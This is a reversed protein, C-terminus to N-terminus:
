RFATATQASLDAFDVVEGGFAALFQPEGDCGYGEAAGRDGGQPRDPKVRRLLIEKVPKLM